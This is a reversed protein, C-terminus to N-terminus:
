ADGRTAARVDRTLADAEAASPEQASWALRRTRAGLDPLGAVGLERALRELARRRESVNGNVGTAAVLELARELATTEPAEVAEEEHPRRRPALRLALAVAALLLVLAGGLLGAGLVGPSVRYSAESLERVDGRWQAREVDFPSLRSAVEVTPWDFADAGRGANYTRYDVRTLRFDFTRGSGSPACEQSLCSLAWRYRLRVLDGASSREVAPEGAPQYPAFSADVRVSDPDVVRRDFHLALTAVVPDGFTHSRPSVWTEALVAPGTPVTQAGDGEGGRLLLIGGVLAGVALAAGVLGAKRLASV